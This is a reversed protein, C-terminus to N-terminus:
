AEIGLKEFVLRRVIKMHSFSIAAIWFNDELTMSSSEDRSVDAYIEWWGVIAIDGEIPSQQLPRRTRDPWYSLMDSQRALEFSDLNWHLFDRLAHANVAATQEPYFIGLTVLRDRFNQAIIFKVRSSHVSVLRSLLTGKSDRIEDGSSNHVFRMEFATIANAQELEEATMPEPVIEPNM